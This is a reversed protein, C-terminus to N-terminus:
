IKIRSIYLFLPLVDIQIMIPCFFGISKYRILRKPRVIPFLYYVLLSNNENFNSSYENMRFSGFQSEVNIISILLSVPLKKHSICVAQLLLKMKQNSLLKITKTSGGPDIAYSTGTGQESLISYCLCDIVLPRCRGKKM